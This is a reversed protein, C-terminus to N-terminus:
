LITRWLNGKTKTIAVASVSYLSQHKDYCCVNETGDGADSGGASDEKTTEVDQTKCGTPIEASVAAAEGEPDAELISVHPAM